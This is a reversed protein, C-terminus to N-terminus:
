THIIIIRVEVLLLMKCVDALKMWGYEFKWPIELKYIRESLFTKALWVYGGSNV